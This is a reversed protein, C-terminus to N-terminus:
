WPDGRTVEMLWALVGTKGAATMSFSERDSTVQGFPWTTV